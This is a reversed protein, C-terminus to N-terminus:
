ISGDDSSVLAANKREAISCQNSLLETLGAFFHEFRAVGIRPSSQRARNKGIDPISSHDSGQRLNARSM